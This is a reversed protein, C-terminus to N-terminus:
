DFVGKEWFEKIEEKTYGLELMIGNTHFGEKVGTQNYELFSKSFKIPIGLQRVTGQNEPLKVDVVLGRERVHSDNLAERLTLVPEVCADVQEFVKEWEARTKKIIIQRIREKTTTVNAPMVGGQILDPCDITHCFAALFQHELGGFSIYQKDKTEYFDYLSGGNLLGEERRPDKEDVLFTAARVANFAIQGDLMSVDINQGQGTNYRHIVASLIGVIANQSGSGVDAIQMGTLSPGTEKRGSYDMLGSRAIYNIDHGGRQCLPGTQGYGTLSCYILAPNIEKLDTYSLGFREMVGPRFQEIVIDYEKEKILRHLIQLSQPAKLNLYMSRKGRGLWARSATIDTGPIIPPVLATLDPRSRSVIQLVDAGMGALVMTAYPGPLLTTFDLIKLGILPGAM